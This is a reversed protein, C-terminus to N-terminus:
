VNNKFTIDFKNEIIEVRRYILKWSIIIINSNKKEIKWSLILYSFIIKKRKKACISRLFYALLM